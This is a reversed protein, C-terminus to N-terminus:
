GEVFGVSRQILYLIYFLTERALFRAKTVRSRYRSTPTPAPYASLGLDRAMTMARKMHLPDSVILVSRWGQTEIIAQAGKLNEYTVQSTAECYIDEEAVGHELAYRRGVDAETLRDGAGKGGTFVIAQINGARYLHVAHRIREEFVPSPRDGWVAAGLVVAV